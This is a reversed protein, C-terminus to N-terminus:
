MPCHSSRNLESVCHAVITPVSATINGYPIVMHYSVMRSSKRRFRGALFVPIRLATARASYVETFVAAVVPAM